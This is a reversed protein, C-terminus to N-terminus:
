RLSARAQLEKKPLNNTPSRLWFARCSTASKKWNVRSVAFRMEEMQCSSATETRPDSRRPETLGFRSMLAPKPEDEKRIIEIVEHIHSRWWCLQPNHLRKLVKEPRHNPRRRRYRPPVLRQSLIEPPKM